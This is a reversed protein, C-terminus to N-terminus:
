PFIINMNKMSPVIQEQNMVRNYNRTKTIFSMIYVLIRHQKNAQGDSWLVYVAGAAATRFLEDHVSKDNVHTASGIVMGNCM